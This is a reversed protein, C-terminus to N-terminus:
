LMFLHPNFTGEAQQRQIETLANWMIQEIQTYRATNGAIIAAHRDRRWAKFCMRVEMPLADIAGLLVRGSVTENVRYRPMGNEMKISVVPVPPIYISSYPAKASKSAPPVSVVASQASLKGAAAAAAAAAPTAVPAAPMFPAGPNFTRPASVGHAAVPPVSPVGTLATAYSPVFDPIKSAYSPVFEPADFAPSAYSPVFTSAAPTPSPQRPPSQTLLQATQVPASTPMPPQFAVMPSAPDFGFAGLSLSPTPPQTGNEQSTFSFVSAGPSGLFYSDLWESPRRSLTVTAPSVSVSAGLSLPPPCSKEAPAGPLVVEPSETPTTISTPMVPRPHPQVAAVAPAETAATPAAATRAVVAPTPSARSSPAPSSGTVPAPSDSRSSPGSQPQKPTNEDEPEGELEEDRPEWSEISYYDDDSDEAEESAEAVPSPLHERAQEPQSQREEDAESDADSLATPSLASTTSSPTNQIAAVAPPNRAKSRSGSPLAVPSPHRALSPLPAPIRPSRPASRLPEDDTSSTSSDGSDLLLDDLLFQPLAVKLDPDSLDRLELGSVGRMGAGAHSDVSRLTQQPPQQQTVAASSM